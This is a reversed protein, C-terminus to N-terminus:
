VVCAIYIQFSVDGLEILCCVSVIHFSQHLLCLWCWWTPSLRSSILVRWAFSNKVSCKTSCLRLIELNLHQLCDFKVPQWIVDTISKTFLDAIPGSFTCQPTFCSLYCFLIHLLDSSAGTSTCQPAFLLVICTYSHSWFYSLLILQACWKAAQCIQCDTLIFKSFGRINHFWSTPVTWNIIKKLLLILISWFQFQNRSVNVFFM